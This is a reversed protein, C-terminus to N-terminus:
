RSGLELLAEEIRDVADGLLRTMSMRAAVKGGRPRELTLCDIQGHQPVPDDIATRSGPMAPRLYPEDFADSLVGSPSGAAPASRAM